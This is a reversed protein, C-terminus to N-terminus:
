QHRGSQGSRFPLALRVVEEARSWLLNGPGDLAVDTLCFPQIADEVRPEGVAVVDGTRAPAPVANGVYAEDPPDIGARVSSNVEGGPERM